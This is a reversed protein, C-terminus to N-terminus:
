VTAFSPHAQEFFPLTGIVDQVILHTLQHNCSPLALTKNEVKQHKSLIKCNTSFHKANDGHMSTLLPVQNVHQVVKSRLAPSMQELLDKEAFFMNHQKKYHFYSRINQQLEAPLM